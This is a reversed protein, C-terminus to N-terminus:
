RRKKVFVKFSLRVPSNAANSRLDITRNHYGAKSHSDFTVHISDTQGPMVPKLPFYVRTCVCAVKYDTVVLPANGNNTFVYYHTLQDGEIAKPFHHKPKLFTMQAAQAHSQFSSFGASFLVILALLGKM